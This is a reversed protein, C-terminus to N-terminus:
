QSADAIDSIIRTVNEYEFWVPCGGSKLFVAVGDRMVMARPHDIEVPDGVTLQVTFSRFPERELLTVITQEFQDATM